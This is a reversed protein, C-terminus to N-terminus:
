PSSPIRNPAPIGLKDEMEKLRAILGPVHNAPNEDYLRKLLDYAERERGACQAMEYAAMRPLYSRADPLQSAKLFADAAACHDEFKDRLLVAYREWLLPNVPDNKLGDELFKKGLEFYQRQARRRLFENPESKDELAANSANWAMHWSAMDWYLASKPQLTTVTDFLAAMRGWETREWAVHAEIWLVAAVFSRFGSLAAVFGMQSIKSRLDLDIRATRFGAERHVADIHQELPVRAAGFALLIVFVIALRKKM